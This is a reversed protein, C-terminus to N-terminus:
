EKNLAEIGVLTKNALFELMAGGGTSIFTFQAQVNDDVSSLTDGGGVISTANSQAIAEAIANTADCFNGECFGLPGNWLIFKARRIEEQLHEVTKRGADFIKDKPQVMDYAINERGGNREVVVDEPLTIKKEKALQVPAETDSVTSAGVEHGLAKFFDNALVGGVFLMDAKTHFQEILPMKTAVKAGGLIFLFPHEPEFAQSLHEIEKAFQLGAYHPLYQPVGVVSAHERHSVPFAENVYVDAFSALHKAFADDNKTEGEWRRLNEFVIISGPAAYQITEKANADFIDRVMITPMYDQLYRAVPELSAEKDRGTHGCLIVKAGREQLWQLTPITMEVRYPDVLQGDEVPANLSGRVLVVKGAIDTLQDLTKM